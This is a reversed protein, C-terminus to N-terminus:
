TRRTARLDRALSELMDAAGRAESVTPTHGLQSALIEVLRSMPDGGLAITLADHMAMKGAIQATCVSSEQM